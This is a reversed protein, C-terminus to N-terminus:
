FSTYYSLSMYVSQVYCKWNEYCVIKPIKLFQICTHLYDIHFTLIFCQNIFIKASSCTLYLSQYLCFSCGQCWAQVNSIICLTIAVHTCTCVHIHVCLIHVSVLQVTGKRPVHYGRKNVLSM